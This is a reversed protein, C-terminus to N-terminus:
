KGKFEGKIKEIAREAAKGHIDCPLFQRLLPLAPEAAPGIEGLTKITADWLMTRNSLMNKDMKLIAILVPVADKAPPGIKELGYMAFIAAQIREGRKAGQIKPDAIANIVVIASPVYRKPDVRMRNVSNIINALNHSNESAMEMLLADTAEKNGNGIRSLAGAALPRLETDRLAGTLKSIASPSVAELAQVAALRSRLDEHKLYEALVPIAPEAKPGHSKLATLANRKSELSKDPNKLIAILEQVPPAKQQAEAVM